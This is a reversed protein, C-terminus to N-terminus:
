SSHTNKLGTFDQAAPLVMLRIFENVSQLRLKLAMLCLYDYEADSFNIRKDVARKKEPPLRPRGRKM